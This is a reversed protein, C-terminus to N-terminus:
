GNDNTEYIATFDFGSTNTLATTAIASESNNAITIFSDGNGVFTGHTTDLTHATVNSVDSLKVGVRGAQTSHAPYPLGGIRIDGTLTSVDSATVRGQVYVLRGIKTFRASATSLTATGGTSGILTPTFVGARYFVDSKLNRKDEREIEDRLGRQDDSDYRDPARRLKM